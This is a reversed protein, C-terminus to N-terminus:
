TRQIFDAFLDCTDDPGSALRGELASTPLDHTKLIQNERCIPIGTVTPSLLKKVIEM